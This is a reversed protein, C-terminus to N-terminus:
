TYMYKDGEKKTAELIEQTRKEYEEATELLEELNLEINFIESITKLASYVGMLDITRGPDAYALLAIAPIHLIEAYYLVQALPGYIKVDKQIERYSLRNKWYNNYVIRVLDSDSEKLSSILGGITIIGDIGKRSLEELLKKVLTSGRSGPPIEEVYLILFHKNYEYIEIPYSLGFKTTTLIPPLYKSEAIAIREIPDLNDILYKITLYGVYGIGKFGTLILRTQPNRYWHIRM